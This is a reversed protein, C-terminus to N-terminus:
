QEATDDADGTGTTDGDEPNGTGDMDNQETTDYEDLYQQATAARETNPYLEVVKQYYPIASDMDNNKRYSQALYYVAYGDHYSEDMEMIKEFGVIAEAYNLRNYNQYAEAYLSSLYESNVEGNVTDYLAKSAEDLYEANVNALADGATTVDGDRYAAYATLLQQYTAVKGDASDANDKEDSIQKELAEVKSELTKIEQNKTSLSDNAELVENKANSKASQRVGPVVLFCTILVGVILGIAINLITSGTSSERFTSTPRIITDNGSQYSVAKKEKDKGGSVSHNSGEIEKLYRLTTTNGEDIKRANELAKRAQEMNGEELYLLGLLQHGKVMKPNMNLVKKLQIVAMDRSDQRCYLLAQNYKKITLNISELRANNQQIEDLYEGAINDEPQFNKSIVWERLASVMEGMEFYVLGLLNRAPINKKNFRLSKKLSDAAGSLDRVGARALAQNYYSNSTQMIKKYVKVDAGCSTCFEERGLSAGCHYCEM